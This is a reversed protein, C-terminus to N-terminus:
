GRPPPYIPTVPYSPLGQADIETELQEREARTLAPPSRWARFAAWEVLDFPTALLNGGRWLVFSPWLLTSLADATGPNQRRQSRHIQYTIPLAVGSLPLGVVFGVFGGVAAPTRVFLTRGSRRDSLDEAYGVLEACGACASAAVLLWGRLASTKM